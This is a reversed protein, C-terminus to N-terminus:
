NSWVTPKNRPHSVAGDGSVDAGDTYLRIIKAYVCGELSKYRNFTPAHKALFIALKGSTLGQCFSIVLLVM